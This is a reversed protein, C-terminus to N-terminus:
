MKRPGTKPPQTVDIFLGRWKVPTHALSGKALIM